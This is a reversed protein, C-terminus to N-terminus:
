PAPRRRPTPRPRSEDDRRDGPRPLQQPVPEHPGTPDETYLLRVRDLADQVDGLAQMNLALAPAFEKQVAVIADRTKQADEVRAGQLEALKDQAARLEARHADREAQRQKEQWAVVVMLVFTVVGLLGGREILVRGLTEM